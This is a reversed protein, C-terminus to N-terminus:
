ETQILFGIIMEDTKDTTIYARLQDDLPICNYSRMITGDKNTEKDMLEWNEEIGCKQYESDPLVPVFNNVIYDKLNWCARTITVVCMKEMTSKEGM